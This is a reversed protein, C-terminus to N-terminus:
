NGYHNTVEHIVVIKGQADKEVSLILRWKKDLRMSDWGAYNGRLKEYHVSRPIRLDREDGAGDMHRVRRLIADVVEKPYRAAGEGQTYLRELRKDAFRFRM